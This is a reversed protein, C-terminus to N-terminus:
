LLANSKGDIGGSSSGGHGSSTSTTSSTIGSSTTSSASTTTGQADDAPATGGFTLTSVKICAGGVVPTSRQTQTDITVQVLEANELTGEFMQGTQSAVSTFLASGSRPYFLAARSCDSGGCGIAVVFCHTCTAFNANDGTGVATNKGVLQAPDGSALITLKTTQPRDTANFSASQLSSGILRITASSGSLTGFDDCAALPSRSVGDPGTVEAPDPNGLVAPLDPRKADQTCAALIAIVAGLGVGFAIKFHM